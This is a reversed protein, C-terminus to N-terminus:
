RNLCNYKSSMAYCLKNMIRYLLSTVESGFFARSDASNLNYDRGTSNHRIDGINSDIFQFLAVIESYMYGEQSIPEKLKQVEQILANFMKDKFVKMVSIDNHKDSSAGTKPLKEARANDAM